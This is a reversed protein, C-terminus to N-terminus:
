ALVELCGVDVVKIYYNEYTCQEKFLRMAHHADSYSSFLSSARLHRVLAVGNRVSAVYGLFDASRDFAYLAFRKM